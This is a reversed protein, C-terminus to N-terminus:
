AKQAMMWDSPLGLSFLHRSNFRSVMEWRPSNRSSIGLGAFGRGRRDSITSPMSGAPLCCSNSLIRAFPTVRMPYTWLPLIAESPPKVPLGGTSIKGKTSTLARVLWVIVSLVAMASSTFFMSLLNSQSAVINQLMRLFRRSVTGM